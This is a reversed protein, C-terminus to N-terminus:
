GGDAKRILVDVAVAGGTGAFLPNIEIEEIRNAPDSAFGALRELTDILAARDAAPKGRYGDILRSLKLRMLAAALDDRSAPLLVTVADRILEVLIGGTALTMAVGFQPERRIGVMLEAVPPSVMAEVMFRDTVAEAKYRTVMARMERVANAVAGADLLGLRVAGAETKHPLLHSVMKLVVPFGIDTAAVPAGAGSVVRRVPTSVGAAEVLAKAEAEDLLRINRAADRPPVLPSPPHALIDRRRASYWAGSALANLAENLGQMPAVGQGVLFGRTETDLNEPLTSCVVALMGRTRAAEIFSVTDARYWPKSEDLEEAPYDQVILATDHSGDFFTSFVPGTKDPLGWIPTTYDLPNSVTATVPLMGRLTSAVPESPPVFVLGVREAHDALMTAGGGSCTLGAVRNSKPVGAVSFLKVTELLQVPNTVKVIGLRDFLADYLDESGSLSGTHSVTLSSGLASTGTKLAVIPKGSRLAKLAAAEFRGIDKIGEIHLGFASVEDRDALVDIFDEIRVASQNGASVMYAFPASRQSMTFDSSLMGSQTIIAAGHGPCFGGHAFPWLAVRDIYNLIGYCNPGVLAMDGAAELLEAELTAGEAGTEGFGATYCVVGGAGMAALKRVADIAGERPIALFVADPAEPLDEIRSYCPNSRMEARKPNVPWFPGRYGIRACETACVEADRGGIAAVHRPKLLRALNARQKPTM